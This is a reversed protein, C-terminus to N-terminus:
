DMIETVGAAMVRADNADIKAAEAADANYDTTLKGIVSLTAPNAYLLRGDRDKAYILDPIADGVAAIFAASRAAAADAERLRAAAQQEAELLASKGQARAAALLTFIGFIAMAIILVLLGVVLLDSQRSLRENTAIREALLASETRNIAALISRAEDILIKGRGSKVLEVASDPDGYRVLSVGTHLLALRQDIVNSLRAISAQQGPNERTISRLATLRVPAVKIGSNYFKLYQSDGTLVYGRHGSEADQM